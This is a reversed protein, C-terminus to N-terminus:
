LSQRSSESGPVETTPEGTQAGPLARGVPPPVSDEQLVEYEAEVEKIVKMDEPTLFVHETRETRTPGFGSRDLMSMTYTALTNFGVKEREGGQETSVVRERLIELNELAHAAMMTKADTLVENRIQTYHLLLQQLAKTHKLMSITGEAMALHKAIDRQKHGMVMLRAIEHHRTRLELPCTDRPGRTRDAQAAQLRILDDDLLERVASVELVKQAVKVEGEIFTGGVYLDPLSADPAAKPKAELLKEVQLGIDM